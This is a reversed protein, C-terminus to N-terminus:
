AAALDIWNVVIDCDLANEASAAGTKKTGTLYYGAPWLTAEPSANGTGTVKDTVTGATAALDVGDLVTDGVLGTASIGVDMTSAGTAAVRSYVRAATILRAVGSDNLVSFLDGGAGAVEETGLQLRIIGGGPTPTFRTKATYAM